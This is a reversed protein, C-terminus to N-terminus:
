KKLIKFDKELAAKMNGNYVAVAPHYFPIFKLGPLWAKTEFVQGHIQSISNLESALGFKEMLFKMSYRGLSCVIEPQIIEIQKKLYETCTEIERDQPDRNGPPRCKLLNAIYVNQREIGVSQLLENLIRGAAGCFPHATKDEQAGPAEGVFLIRADHSGEGIVPNTRTKYLPCKTCAVVQDKVKKLEATKESM